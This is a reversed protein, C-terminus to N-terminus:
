TSGLRYGGPIGSTKETFCQILNLEVINEVCSYRVLATEFNSSINIWIHEIPVFNLWCFCRQNKLDPVEAIFHLIRVVLGLKVDHFKNQDCDRKGCVCSSSLIPMSCRVSRYCFIGTAFFNGVTHHTKSNQIGKLNVSNSSTNNEVNTITLYPYYIFTECAFSFNCIFNWRLLWKDDCVHLKMIQVCSFHRHPKNRLCM